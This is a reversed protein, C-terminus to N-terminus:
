LSSHQRQLPAEAQSQNLHPRECPASLWVFCLVSQLTQYLWHATTSVSQREELSPHPWSRQLTSAPRDSQPEVGPATPRWSPAPSWIDSLHPHCLEWQPFQPVKSRSASYFILMMVGQPKPKQLTPDLFTVKSWEFGILVYFAKLRWFFPCHFFGKM